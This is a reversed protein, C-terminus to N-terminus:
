ILSSFNQTGPSSQFTEASIYYDNLDQRPRKSGNTQEDELSRKAPRVNALDEQTNSFNFPYSKPLLADM